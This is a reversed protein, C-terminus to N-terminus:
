AFPSSFGYYGFSICVFNNHRLHNFSCQVQANCTFISFTSMLWHITKKWYRVGLTWTDLAWTRIKNILSFKNRKDILILINFDEWGSHTWKRQAFKDLACRFTFNNNQKICAIGFHPVDYVVDYFSLLFTKNWLNLDSVNIRFGFM